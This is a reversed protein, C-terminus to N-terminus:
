TSKPVSGSMMTHRALEEESLRLAGRCDYKRPHSEQHNQIQDYADDDSTNNYNSQTIATILPKHPPQQQNRHHHDLRSLYNNNDFDNQPKLITSYVANGNEIM